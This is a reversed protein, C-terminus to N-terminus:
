VLLFSVQKMGNEFLFLTLHLSPVPLYFVAPTCLLLVNLIKQKVTVVHVSVINRNSIPIIQYVGYFNM